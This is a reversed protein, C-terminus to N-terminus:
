QNWHPPKNIFRRVKPNGKEFEARLRWDEGPQLFEAESQLDPLYMRMRRPGKTGLLDTKYEVTALVRRALTPEAAEERGCGLGSDCLDFLSGMFNSRLDGLPLKWGAETKHFFSYRSTMGARKKCSMM